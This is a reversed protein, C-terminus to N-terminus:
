TWLPISRKAVRYADIASWISFAWWLLTFSLLGGVIAGGLMLFGKKVDGNYFQGLGVIVLSFILALIPTKSEAYIKMAPQRRGQYPYNVAPAAGPNGNPLPPFPSPTMAAPGAVVLAQPNVAPAAAFPLSTALATGCGVCFRAGAATELGCNTCHM